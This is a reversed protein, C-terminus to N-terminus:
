KLKLLKIEEFKKFDKDLSVVYDLNYHKFFIISSCDIFSVKFTNKNYKQFVSFTKDNYNVIEHENIITLNDKYYNYVEKVLNINKTKMNLVTMIESLVGGSIYCKNNELIDKNKIVKQHNPHKKWSLPILFSSDLFIKNM